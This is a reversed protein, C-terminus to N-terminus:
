SPSAGSIGARTQEGSARDDCLVEAGRPKRSGPCICAGSPETRATSRGSHTGGDGSVRPVSAADMCRRPTMSRGEMISRSLGSPQPTHLVRCPPPLHAVCSVYKQALSQKREAGRQASVSGSARGDGSSPSTAAKAHVRLPQRGATRRLGSVGGKARVAGCGFAVGATAVVMELHTDQPGCEVCGCCAQRCCPSPALCCPV